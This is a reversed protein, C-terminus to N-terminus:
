NQSRVWPEIRDNRITNLTGHIAPDYLESRTIFYRAFDHGTLGPARYYESRTQEEELYSEFQEVTLVRRQGGPTIIGIRFENEPTFLLCIEFSFNTHIVQIISEVHTSWGFEGQTFPTMRYNKLLQLLIQFLTHNYESLDIGYTEELVNLVEPFVDQIRTTTTAFRMNEEFVDQDHYHLIVFAGTYFEAWLREADQLLHESRVFEIFYYLVRFALYMIGTPYTTTNAVQDLILFEVINEVYKVAAAHFSLTEDQLFWQLLRWADDDDRSIWTIEEAFMVRGSQALTEHLQNLHEPSVSRELLIRRARKALELEGFIAIRMLRQETNDSRLFALQDEYIVLLGRGQLELLRLLAWDSLWGSSGTALRILM